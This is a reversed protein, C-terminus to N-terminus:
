KPEATILADAAVWAHAAAYEPTSGYIIMAAALQGAYAERKTLMHTTSPVCVAIVVLQVGIFWLAPALPHNM